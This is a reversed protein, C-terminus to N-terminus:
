VRRFPPKYCRSGLLDGEIIAPIGTEHVPSGTNCREGQREDGFLGPRMQCRVWVDRSLGPSASGGHSGPRGLM